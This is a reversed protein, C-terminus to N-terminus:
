NFEIKNTITKETTSSNKVQRIFNEIKEKNISIYNYETLVNLEILELVFKNNFYNRKQEYELKNSYIFETMIRLAVIDIFVLKGKWNPVKSHIDKAIGSFKKEDFNNYVIFFADLIAESSYTCIEYNSLAKTIYDAIKRKESSYFQYGKSSESYKADWM